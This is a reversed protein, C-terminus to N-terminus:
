FFNISTFFWFNSKMDFRQSCDIKLRYLFISVTVIIMMTVANAIYKAEMKANLMKTLVLSLGINARGLEIGSATAAANVGRVGTAGIVTIQLLLVFSNKHNDDLSLKM